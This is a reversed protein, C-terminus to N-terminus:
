DTDEVFWVLNGSPDLIAFERSGWPKTELPANPHVIAAVIALAYFADVDEVGLRCSTNEAIHRDDCRWLHIEVGDRGIIGYDDTCHIIEFGLHRAFFDLTETINAAPLVPVAHTLRTM